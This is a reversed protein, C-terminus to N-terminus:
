APQTIAKVHPQLMPKFGSGEGVSLRKTCSCQAEEECKITLQYTKRGVKRDYIKEEGVGPLVFEKVITKIERNDQKNENRHTASIKMQPQEESGTIPFLFKVESIDDGIRAEKLEAEPLDVIFHMDLAWFSSVYVLTEDDCLSWDFGAQPEPKRVPPFAVSVRATLPLKGEGQLSIPYIRHKTEM